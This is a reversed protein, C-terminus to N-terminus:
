SNCRRNYRHVCDIIAYPNETQQRITALPSSRRHERLGRCEGHEPMDDGLFDIIADKIIKAQPTGTEACKAKFAKAIPIPVVARVTIYNKKRYRNIVAASTKGM